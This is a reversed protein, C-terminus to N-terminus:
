YEYQKKVIAFIREVEVEDNLIKYLWNKIVREKAENGRWCDPRYKIITEHVTIALKKDKGLNNYLARKAPTNLIDPTTETKGEKVKQVLEAIQKLYEKYDIAKSKREKIIGALLRSMDDFFAPDILHDKIIKSRVNNEITEAVANEVKRFLDKYDVIYGFQKDDTDLRNVRCIAQFLGHDQMSKDIYLYTCSPVDFGVLLKDVVILLKMNAPEDHFKTKAEAEYTETQKNKLLTKYTKYIFERETETNAGTDETTIYGTSPNYSTVVACRDKLETNQFIEFYRRRAAHGEHYPEAQREPYSSM